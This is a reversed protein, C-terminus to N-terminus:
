FNQCGKRSGGRSNGIHRFITSLVYYLTLSCIMYPFVKATIYLIYGHFVQVTVQLSINSISLAM